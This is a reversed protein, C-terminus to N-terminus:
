GAAFIEEAVDWNILETFAALYDGRRNQYNLYYAHEWVDVGIIPRGPEDVINAM